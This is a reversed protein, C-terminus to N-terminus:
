RKKNLFYFLLFLAGGIFYYKNSGSLVSSLVSTTKTLAKAPNISGTSLDKGNRDYPTGDIEVYNGTNKDYSKLEVGQFTYWSGGEQYAGTNQDYDDIPTGNNLYLTNDIDMYVGTLSDQWQISPSPSFIIYGLSM